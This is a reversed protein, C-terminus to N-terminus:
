NSILEEWGIAKAPEDAVNREKSVDTVRMNSLVVNSSILSTTESPLGRPSYKLGETALSVLPLGTDGISNGLRRFGCVITGSVVGGTSTCNRNSRSAPSNLSPNLSGISGSLTLMELMYRVPTSVVVACPLPKVPVNVEVALGMRVM